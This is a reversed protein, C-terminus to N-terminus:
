YALIKKGLVSTKEKTLVREIMTSQCHATESM